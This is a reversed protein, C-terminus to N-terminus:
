KKSITIKVGNPISEQTYSYGLHNSIKQYVGDLFILYDEYSVNYFPGSNKLDTLFNEFQLVAHKDDQELVKMDENKVISSWNNRVGNVFGNLGFNNNWSTKFQDGTFAAFEDVSKGMSKAYNIATILFQDPQYYSTPYILNRYTMKWKGDNKELFCTALFENDPSKNKFLVWASEDYVKMILPTKVENNEITQGLFFSPAQTYYKDWGITMGFGNNWASQILLTSDHVYTAAWREIDDACYADTEEKIVAMVAEKDMLEKAEMAKNYSWAENIEHAKMFNKYANKYDKAAMYYDGMSDYVNPNKPALSIYKEFAEKAKDMNGLNMYTYGLMNYIPADDDTLDLMKLYTDRVAENNAIISQYTALMQHAALSEPFQEVLETGYATVDSKPNELLKQLAEQMIKEHKPLKNIALANKSFQKFESTNGFYMNFIALMCNPMFFNPDEKLAENFSTTAKVFDVDNMALVGQQFLEVAKKSKTNMPLDWPEAQQASVLCSFISCMLLLALKQLYNKM